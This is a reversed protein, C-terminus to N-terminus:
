NFHAFLLGEVDDDDAGAGGAVVGRDAGRLEAQLGGADVGREALVALGREAAGAQADAADRRLRQEVARALEVVQLMQEAVVADRRLVRLDVDGVMTPRLSLITFCNVPPMAISNLAFM